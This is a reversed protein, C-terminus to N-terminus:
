QARGGRLNSRRYRRMPIVPASMVIEPGIGDTMKRLEKQVDDAAPDLLVDAGANKRVYDRRYASPESVVIKCGYYKLLATVGLGIPGAGSVFVIKGPKLDLQRAARYAVGVTDGGLLVLMDWTIDEPAKIVCMEPLAIYQAHAGNAYQLSECFQHIGEKCYPCKGCGIMIQVVARDGKRFVKSEGPDVVEGSMEHGSLWYGEGPTHPPKQALYGKMESGCLASSMVKLLLEGKKPKPNEVEGVDGNGTETM